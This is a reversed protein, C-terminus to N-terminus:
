FLMGAGIYPVIEHFTVSTTGLTFTNNAADNTETIAQGLGIAYRLAFTSTVIPGPGAHKPRKKTDLPKSFTVGGTIGYYNVKEGFEDQVNPLNSRDTFLGAGLAMNENYQWRVGVRANVVHVLQQSNNNVGTQYDVEASVWADKLGVMALSTAASAIFRAPNMVTGAPIPANKNVNESFEQAMSAPLSPDYNAYVDLESQSSKVVFEPSRIVLGVHWDDAPDWQLGVQAQAGVYSYSGHTQEFDYYGAAGNVMQVNQLYQYSFSETSYTAFLSAGVRLSPLAQWGIAPGIHYLKTNDLVDIRQQYQAGTPGDSGSTQNSVSYSDLQTVFLGLGVSLGDNIQRVVATANPTTFFTVSSLGITSSAATGPYTTTLANPVSRIRFAFGTGNLKAQDRVSAGLGAPNYWIAGADSTTATVAGATLAADDSFYFSDTNGASALPAAATISAFAGIAGYAKRKCLKM